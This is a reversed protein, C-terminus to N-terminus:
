LIFIEPMSDNRKKFSSCWSEFLSSLCRSLRATQKASISPHLPTTVQEACDTSQLVAELLCVCVCVGSASRAIDTFWLFFMGDTFDSRHTQKYGGTSDKTMNVKELHNNCFSIRSPNLEYYWILNVNFVLSSFQCDPAVSHICWIYIRIEASSHQAEHVIM